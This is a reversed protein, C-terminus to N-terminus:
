RNAMEDHFGVDKKLQQIYKMWATSYTPGLFRHDAIYLNKEKAPSICKLFQIDYRPDNRFPKGFWGTIHDQQSYVNVCKAGYDM